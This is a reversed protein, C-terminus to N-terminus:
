KSDQQKYYTSTEQTTPPSETLQLHVFCVELLNVGISIYSACRLMHLLILSDVCLARPLSVDCGYGTLAAVTWSILWFRPTFRSQFLLPM